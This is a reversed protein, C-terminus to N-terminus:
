MSALDHSARVYTTAWSDMYYSDTTDQQTCNLAELAPGILSKEVRMQAEQTFHMGDWFVYEDPNSCVPVGKHSCFRKPDFNYKGGIGCCTKLARNVLDPGIVSSNIIYRRLGNYMDGYLIHVDPYEDKLKVMAKKLQKNKWVTFKNVTKLCGYEDYADPNDTELATLIYPFCGLPGNGPIIVRKAGLIITERARIILARVIAPVYTRVEAITKGQTLAYGIDNGEIDGMLVLSKGMWETCESPSHCVYKLHKRFWHMQENLPVAYPPIVIDRLEFFKRHLVPSGAVSFIVGDYSAAKSQSMNLYPQINPLGFDEASFDFDVLGDSWRGTPSGPYTMGYPKRGAPITIKPLVHISNGIDTVGDGWHYLYDFPCNWREASSTEIQIALYLCVIKFVTSHMQAKM